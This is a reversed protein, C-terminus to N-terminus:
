PQPPLDQWWKPLSAVAQAGHARTMGLVIAAVDLAVQRNYVDERTIPPSNGLVDVRQDCGLVALVALGGILGRVCIRQHSSQVANGTEQKLLRRRVYGRLVDVSKHRSVEVMKFVSAGTECQALV